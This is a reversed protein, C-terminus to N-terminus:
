AVRQLAFLMDGHHINTAPHAHLRDFAEPDLDELRPSRNILLTQSFVGRLRHQASLVSRYGWQHLM